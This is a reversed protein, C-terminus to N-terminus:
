EDPLAGGDDADASETIRGGTLVLRTDARGDDERHRVRIAAKGQAVFASTMEGIAVASVDDLAADAEDLLLVDPDTLLTRLFAVRAQQGVSLRDIPRDLAIDELHASALAELLVEDTPPSEKAFSRFTWPLLLNEAVTGEVLVPKQQVLAVLRRWRQPTFSLYSQERLYLAGEFTASQRGLAHLLTSKGSGSPGTIDLIEGRKLSLSVDDVARFPGDDGTLVV